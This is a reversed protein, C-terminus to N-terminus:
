CRTCSTRTEGNAHPTGRRRSSHSPQESRTRQPDAHSHRSFCNKSSKKTREVPPCPGSAALTRRHARVVRPFRVRTQARLDMTMPVTVRYITWLRESSRMVSLRSYAIAIVKCLIQTLTSGGDNDMQRLRFYVTSHGWISLPTNDEFAYNQITNSQGQGKVFGINQWTQADFSRQIDFGVNNKESVTQWTLLARGNHEHGKFFTLEVPITPAACLTQFIVTVASTATVGSKPGITLSKIPVSFSFESAGNSGTGTIENNTIGGITATMTTVWTPYAPVNMEDTATISQGESTGVSSLKFSEGVSSKSVAINFTITATGSASKNFSTPNTLATPTPFFTTTGGSVINVSGTATTSPYNLTGTTSGTSPLPNWVPTGSNTCQSQATFPLLCTCFVVLSSLTRKM